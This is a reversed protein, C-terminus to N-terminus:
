ENSGASDKAVKNIMDSYVSMVEGTNGENVVEGDWSITYDMKPKPKSRDYGSKPMKTQWVWAGERNIIM